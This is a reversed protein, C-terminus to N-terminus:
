LDVVGYLSLDWMRRIGARHLQKQLRGDMQEARLYRLPIWRRVMQLPFDVEGYQMRMRKLIGIPYADTAEDPLGGVQRVVIPSSSAKFPLVWELSTHALM